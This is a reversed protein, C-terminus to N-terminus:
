IRGTIAKLGFKNLYWVAAGAGAVVAVKKATSVRPQEADGRPPPSWKPPVDDGQPLNPDIGIVGGPSEPKPEFDPAKINPFGMRQARAMENRYDEDPIMDLEVNMRASNTLLLQRHEFWKQKLASDAQISAFDPGVYAVTTRYVFNRRLMQKFNDIMLKVVPWYLIYREQIGAFRNTCWWRALDEYYGKHKDKPRVFSPGYWYPAPVSYGDELATLAYEELENAYKTLLGEAPDGTLLWTLGGAAKSEKAPNTPTGSSRVAGGQFGGSFPDGHRVYRLKDMEGPVSALTSDFHPGPWKGQQSYNDPKGFMGHMACSNMATLAFAIHRDTANNNDNFALYAIYDRLSLYMDSWATEMREVDIKFSNGTNATVQGWLSFLAQMASPVFDGTDNAPLHGLPPPAGVLRWKNRATDEHEAAYQGIQWDMVLKPLGPVMGFAPESANYGPTPQQEYKWEVGWAKPSGQEGPYYARKEKNLQFKKTNIMEGCYHKFQDLPGPAARGIPLFYPTWDTTEGEISKLVRSTLYEDVAKNYGAAAPLAAEDKAAELQQQYVVAKYIGMAAGYAIDVIWGVIPIGSLADMAYELVDDVVEIAFDEAFNIIMNTSLSSWRNLGANLAELRIRDFGQEIGVQLLGRGQIVISNRRSADVLGRKDGVHKLIELTNGQEFVKEDPLDSKFEGINKWGEVLDFPEKNDWEWLPDVKPM